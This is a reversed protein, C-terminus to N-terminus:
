TIENALEKSTQKVVYYDDPKPFVGYNEPRNSLEPDNGNEDVTRSKVAVDMNHSVWYWDKRGELVVKEVSKDARCLAAFDTLSTRESRKKSKYSVTKETGDFFHIVVRIEM